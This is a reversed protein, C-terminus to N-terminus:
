SPFLISLIGAPLQVGLAAQFFVYMGVTFGVLVLSRVAILRYSGWSDNAAFYFCHVSVILFLSIMPVFGISEMLLITLGLAVLFLLRIGRFMEMFVFKEQKRSRIIAVLRLAIFALLIAILITPFIGPGGSRDLAGTPYHMTEFLMTGAVAALSALFISEGM